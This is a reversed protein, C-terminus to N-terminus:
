PKGGCNDNWVGSWALIIYKRKMAGERWLIIINNCGFRITSSGTDISGNLKLKRELTGRIFILERDSSSVRSTFFDISNDLLQTIVKVDKEPIGLELVEDELTIEKTIEKLDWM